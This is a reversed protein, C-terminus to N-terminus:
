EAGRDTREIRRYECGRRLDLNRRAHLRRTATSRCPQRILPHDQDRRKRAEHLTDVVAEILEVPLQNITEQLSTIYDQIKM